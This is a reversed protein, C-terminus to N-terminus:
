LYGSNGDPDPREVRPVAAVGAADGAIWYLVSKPPGRGFEEPPKERLISQRDHSIGVLPCMPGTVGFTRGEGAFLTVVVM